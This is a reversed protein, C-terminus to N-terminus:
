NEFYLSHKASLRTKFHSNKSSLSPRHDMTYLISKHFTVDFNNLSLATSNQAVPAVPKLGSCFQLMLNTM